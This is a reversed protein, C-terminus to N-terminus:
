YKIKKNKRLSYYLAIIQDEPMNKVRDKWKQGDYAKSVAARMEASSM